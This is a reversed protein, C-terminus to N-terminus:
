YFKLLGHSEAHTTCCTAWSIQCGFFDRSIIQYDYGNEGTITSALMQTL